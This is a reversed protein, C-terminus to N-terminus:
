GRHQPHQRPDVRARGNWIRWRRDDAIRWRRIAMEEATETRRSKRPPEESSESPSSESESPSESSEEESESESSKEESEEASEEASEESDSEESGEATAKSAAAAAAKSAASGAAAKPAAAAGGGGGQHGLGCTHRVGRRWRRRGAADNVERSAERTHRVRLLECYECDADMGAKAATAAAVEALESQFRGADAATM